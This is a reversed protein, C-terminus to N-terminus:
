SANEENWGPSIESPSSEGPSSEGASIIRGLHDPRSSGRQLVIGTVAAVYITWWPPDNASAFSAGRNARVFPTDIPPDAPPRSTAPAVDRRM